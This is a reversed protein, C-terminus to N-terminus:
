YKCDIKLKSAMAKKIINLLTKNKMECQELGINADEDGRQNARSM